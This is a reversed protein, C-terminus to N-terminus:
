RTLAKWRDIPSQQRRAHRQLTKVLPKAWSPTPVSYDFGPLRVRELKQKLLHKIGSILPEDEQTVLTWAVGTADLRATRGIRHVYDEAEAPTDFNIVHSIGEIDLGRAAVNTAVLVRAKGSRFRELAQPRRQQRYDGQIVAV